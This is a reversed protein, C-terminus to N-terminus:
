KAPTANRLAAIAEGRDPATFIYSGSVLANAGAEICPGATEGDIGGDVEIDLGPGAEERARRIKEIADPIFKQGSFGPNVSMVLLSDIEGLFPLVTEIDTPPNLALGVKSGEKRIADFVPKPDSVAEIHFQVVDAGRKAFLPGFLLPDTIMLHAELFKDSVRRVDRVLDAGFTLNPVFHGDMVDLHFREVGFQEVDKIEDALHAFDASLISPSIEVTMNDRM